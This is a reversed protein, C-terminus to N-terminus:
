KRFDKLHSGLKKLLYYICSKVSGEPIGTIDAVEKISLEQEFRLLYVKQEKDSLTELLKKIEQQLIRLDSKAATLMAVETDGETYLQLLRSHTEENRLQNKCANGVVTYIWTSFKKQRNFREPKQIIKLFVDQVIDEAQEMRGVLGYAYWVLKDFYRDYLQAFAKENGKAVLAMLQEDGSKGINHFGFM